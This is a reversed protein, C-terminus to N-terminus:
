NLLVKMTREVVTHGESDVARIVLTYTGPTLDFTEWEGRWMRWQGNQTRLNSNELTKRVKGKDDLLQGNVRSVLSDITPSICGVGYVRGYNGPVQADIPFLARSYSILSLHNLSDVLMVRGFTAPTDVSTPSSYAFTRHVRRGGDSSGM